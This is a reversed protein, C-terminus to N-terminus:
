QKEDSRMKVYTIHPQLAHGAPVDPHMFDRHKARQMGAREMVLASRRNPVATFAVVEPLVLEHLGYRIAEIAAESAYGMGWHAPALRWSAEVNPALPHNSRLHKLGTFGIFSGNSQLELAWLGYGYRQMEERIRAILALSETRSFSNTPFFECVRADANLTVFPETDADKWPRLILRKTKLTVPTM